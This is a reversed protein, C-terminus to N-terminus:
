PFIALTFGDTSLTALEDETCNFWAKHADGLVMRVEFKEGTNIIHMVYILPEEPHCEDLAGEVEPLFLRVLGEAYTNEVPTTGTYKWRLTNGRPLKMCGNHNRRRM